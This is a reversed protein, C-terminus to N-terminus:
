WWIEYPFVIWVDEEGKNIEYGYYDVNFKSSINNCIVATRVNKGWVTDWHKDNPLCASKWDDKIWQLTNGTDNIDDVILINKGVKNSMFGFADEAMWSNSELNNETFDRLSVNLTHHKCNLYHSLMTSPILGGRNIGVIYDPYFKDSNMKRTIELLAHKIQNNSYYVKDM